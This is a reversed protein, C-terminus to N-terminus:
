SQIMDLLGNEETVCELNLVASPCLGEVAQRRPQESSEAGFHDVPKCAFVLNGWFSRSRPELRENAAGVVMGADIGAPGPGREFILRIVWRGICQHFSDPPTFRHRFPSVTARDSQRM